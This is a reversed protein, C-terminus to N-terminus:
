VIRNRANGAIFSDINLAIQELLRKISEQSAWAIHPTLLLNDGQYNVLPNDTSAPEQSLVDVGAAAITNDGLADALAQENVIGGRATNILVASPKMRQFEAHSLLDRSETTLPCHLSVIDAQALADYFAVRGERVVSAGKRESIVVNAGFASAVKAVAQGLSGYGYIMFQKGALETIAYDLRCFMQSQQWLGARCDQIYRHQNGLLNGLLTFTHQVVSATSYGAVNCVTIGLQEAASLDINNSGTAAVCILKLQPAQALTNADLVVKNTIVVEVQQLRSVLQIASTTQYHAVQGFRDFLSLDVDGFTQTDLIAINM